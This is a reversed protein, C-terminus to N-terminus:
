KIFELFASPVYATAVLCLGEVEVVVRQQGCVRAVRRMVGKFKGEVIRVLNGNKYHCQKADM